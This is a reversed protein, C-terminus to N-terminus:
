LTEPCRVHPYLFRKYVKYLNFIIPPIDHEVVFGHFLDVRGNLQLNDFISLRRPIKQPLASGISRGATGVHNEEIKVQWLFV